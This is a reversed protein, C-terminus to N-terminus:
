SGVCTKQFDKVFAQAEPMPLVKKGAHVYDVVLDDFCAQYRPADAPSGYDETDNHPFLTVSQLVSEKSAPNYAYDATGTCGISSEDLDKFAVLTTSALLDILDYSNLNMSYRLTGKDFSASEMGGVCRDGLAIRDVILLNAGDYTVRFLKSFMGTGGGNEVVEIYSSDKDSGIVTYSIFGASIPDPLDPYHLDPYDASFEGDTSTSFAYAKAKENCQAIDIVDSGNGMGDPKAFRDDTGLCFPHIFPLPLNTATVSNGAGIPILASRSFFHLFVFAAGLALLVAVGILIYKKM